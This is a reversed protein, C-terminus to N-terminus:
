RVRVLVVKDEKNGSKDYTRILLTHTGKPTGAPVDFFGDKTKVKEGNFYYKYYRIKYDDTANWWIKSGVQKNIIPPISDFEPDKTDLKVRYSSSKDLLDGSSNLYHLKLSYTGDEKFRVKVKWNGESDAEIEEKMKGDVYVQVKGNRLYESKGKFTTKEKKIYIRKDKDIKEFEDGLNVSPKSIKIESEPNPIEVEDDESVPIEEGEAEVSFSINFSDGNANGSGDICKIYYTYATGNSLGTLSTSHATSGTTSFDGSMLSYGVNENSYKCTANESTTVQMEITQTDLPLVGSPAGGSLTPPTTDPLTIVVGDSSSVSINGVADRVWAYLTKSGASSFLYTTPATASWGSAGLSPTASTETLLYATVEINDTAEFTTIAVNLSEATAPIVFSSITPRSSDINVSDNLSASINGVADKAWAYLTKIGDSSFVYNAPASVSWAPDDVSPTDSTETLLYGTVSLNDTATFTTIPVTQSTSNAPIVFNTVVPIANVSVADNLSLSVNGDADRAWAYLTKSGETDFTYNTPATASWGASEPTPAVDTETIKYGVVGVNDTATFTTIPVTLSTSTEPITFETVVPAEADLGSSAITVASNTRTAVVFGGLASADSTVAFSVPSDTATALATFSFTAVDSTTTIYTPPNTLLGVDISGTGSGITPGALTINFADSRTISDLRLAVPDYTVDLEVGGVTNTGPDVQAILDFTQGVTTAVTAQNFLLEADVAAQSNGAGLFTVGLLSIGSLLIIKKIKRM